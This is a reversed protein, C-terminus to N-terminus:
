EKWSLLLGKSDIKYTVDSVAINEPLIYSRYFGYTSYRNWPCYRESEEVLVNYMGDILITGDEADVHVNEETIGAAPIRMHYVAESEKKKLPFSNPILDGLFQFSNNIKEKM